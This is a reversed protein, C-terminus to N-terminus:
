KKPEYPCQGAKCIIDQRLLGTYYNDAQNYCSTHEGGDKLCQYFLTNAALLRSEMLLQQPDYAYIITQMGAFFSFVM